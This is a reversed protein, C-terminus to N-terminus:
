GHTQQIKTILDTLKVAQIWEWTYLGEGKARESWDRHCGDWTSIAVCESSAATLEGSHAPQQKECDSGTTRAFSGHLIFRVPSDGSTECSPVVRILCICVDNWKPINPSKLLENDKNKQRFFILMCDIGKQKASGCYVKSFVFCMLMKHSILMIVAANHFKQLSYINTDM